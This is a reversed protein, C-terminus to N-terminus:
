PALEQEAYKWSRQDACACARLRNDRTWWILMPYDFPVGNDALDHTLSAVMSQGASIVATRAADGDAPAIGPATWADPAVLSWQQFLKWSRNTWLEAVTAREAPSALAQGNQPPRAIVVLRTDVDSKQLKPLESAEFALCAPCARYVVVYLKPGTLHPSVWGSQDLAQAIQDQDKTLTHPRWRWDTSWLLFVTVGAVAAIGVAVLASIIMWPRM